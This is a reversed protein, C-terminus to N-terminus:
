KNHALVVDITHHTFRELKSNPEGDIKMIALAESASLLIRADDRNDRNINDESSWLIESIKSLTEDQFALYRDRLEKDFRAAWGRQVIVYSLHTDVLALLRGALGHLVDPATGKAGEIGDFLALYFRAIEDVVAFLLEERTPFYVFTAATSVGARKAIDAHKAEGFGREAFLDIAATLLQNRREEPSLRTRSKKNQTLKPM